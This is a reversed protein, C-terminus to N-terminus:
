QDKIYRRKHLILEFRKDMKKKIPNITKKNSLHLHEKYMRFVLVKEPTHTVSIKKWDTAQRKM